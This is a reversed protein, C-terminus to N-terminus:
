QGWRLLCCLLGVSTAGVVVNLLVVLMWPGWRPAWSATSRGCALLYLPMSVRCEKFVLYNAQVWVSLGISVAFAVSMNHDAHVVRFASLAFGADALAFAGSAISAKAAKAALGAAESPAIQAARRAHVLDSILDLVLSGSLAALAVPLLLGM